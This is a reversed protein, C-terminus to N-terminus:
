KMLLFLIMLLYYVCLIENQIGRTLEYMVITFLFPSLTSGQHLGIDISIDEIAGRLTRVRTKVEHYMDKNARIYAVLVDKKGLCEWLVVCPVLDIFVM